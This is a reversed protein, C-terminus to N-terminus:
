VVTFQGMMGADEHELIHCHYMYPIKPDSYHDFLILLRVREQPNILVTDKLGQEGPPPASGNRDIIRFQTNHIHFPHPMPSSNSVEWIETVGKEVVEDIRNMKMSRGNIRFKAFMGMGSMQMDFKRTNSASSASVAPLNALRDPLAPSQVLSAAPRLELFDFAPGSGMMMGMMMGGGGGGSAVSRLVVNQGGSMDVIIEAREGPSLRLSRMRVPQNLLGGDSAIQDFEREDSFGLTYIAGNAGNLLRLRILSTTVKFFPAITGNVMPVDGVMGMMRAQMSPDYPMQGNRRFARDQLVVPIDDVGYTDPLNLAKSQADDILILGALGAWVQDATQHLAHSHYWMTSAKERVVFEPSWVDGPKLEQHPGGDARAPLNFGHWHLTTKERLQNTVNLRVTEGSNMRLVPGLFSGNIGITATEVGAFFGTTGTQLSLDYVRVGDRRVGAYLTPIQLPRATVTLSAHGQRSSTAFVGATALALTAAGLRLAARRSISNQQM